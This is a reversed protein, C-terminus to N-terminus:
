LYGLARLRESTKDDTPSDQKENSDQRENTISSDGSVIERRTEAEIKLWPVTVLNDAYVSPPHGYMEFPIPCPNPTEGVLNGHDSTIVTQGPLQTVLQDVHSLAHELTEEYADWVVSKSVVGRKLLDWIHEHDSESHEGDAQRKSLEIGAREDVLSNATDGIFPYHPQVFHSIIRKDPYREVANLTAEVMATPRVTNLEEDWQDHWVSITEYFPDDLNVNVQPNATVYVTDEFSRNAFNRRLFEATNSGRSRRSQLEGDVTNTRAFMDYRCADLIVLNDWDEAMIDVGDNDYIYTFYPQVFASRIAFPLAISNWWDLDNWHKRINTMILSANM